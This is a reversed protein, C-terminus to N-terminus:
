GGRLQTIARRVLVPLVERRYWSSALSDDRPELGDLAEASAREAAAGDALAREVARLRVARPAVGAAAVRVGDASEACAVAMVAYSHAHPRRQSLYAARRPRELEVGLVLRPEGDLGALFEEIPELRERGAAACRVEAGGALLAAQLDGRPGQASPPACLNGGLTAQGRIEADAVDGAAAALPEVGSRALAALTTMAGIAVRGDVDIKDLGARALMLTRGRAPQRRYAIMPMLITGGGFVTVDRGDGFAQVADAASTPSLIESDSPGM